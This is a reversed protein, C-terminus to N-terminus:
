PHLVFGWGTFHPFPGFFYLTWLVALVLFIRLAHGMWRRRFEQAEGTAPQYVYVYGHETHIWYGNEKAMRREVGRRVGNRM